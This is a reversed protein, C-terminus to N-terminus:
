DHDEYKLLEQYAQVESWEKFRESAEFGDEHVDPPIPSDIINGYKNLQWQEYPSLENEM